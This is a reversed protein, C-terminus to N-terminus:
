AGGLTEGAAKSVNRVKNKKLEIITRILYAFEPETWKFNKRKKKLKENHFGKHTVSIHVQFGNKSDSSFKCLDCEFKLQHEAPPIGQCCIMHIGTCKSVESSYGFKCFYIFQDISHIKKCHYEFLKNKALQENCCYCDWPQKSVPHLYVLQGKENINGPLKDTFDCAYNSLNRRRQKSTM